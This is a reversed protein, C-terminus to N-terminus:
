EVVENARAQVLAPITLGFAKATALNLIFHFKVPQEIPLDGPKTGKLIKDIFYAARRFQALFDAGYGMLGGNRAIELPGISALRHQTAAEAILKADAVLQPGDHVVLGAVKGDALTSMVEGYERPEGVELPRMELKLKEAIPGMAKLTPANYSNGRTLLVGVRTISPVADKLLEFRKAMTADGYYNSGTINGGPRAISHALGLSVLNPGTVMVIPITKTAKTAALVGAGAYTVIIDVNLSVLEAAMASLRGTDGDAYRAELRFTSGEVHGLDRLGAILSGLYPNLPMAPNISLFGIVRIASGQARTLRPSLTFAATSALLIRRKM